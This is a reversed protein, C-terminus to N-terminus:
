EASSYTFLKSVFLSEIPSSRVQYVQSTFRDKLVEITWPLHKKIKKKYLYPAPPKEDQQSEKNQDVISICLDDDFDDM